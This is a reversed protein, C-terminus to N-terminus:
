PFDQYTNIVISQWQMGGDKVAENYRNPRTRLSNALPGPSSPEIGPRTMGFVKFHYKIGEQKVCLLILYTNPTCHLLGPFSYRGGWRRLTTAISFRANHDGKVITAM